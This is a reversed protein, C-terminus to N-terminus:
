SPFGGSRSRRRAPRLGGPLVASPMLPPLKPLRKFEAILADAQEVTLGRPVTRRVAVALDYLQRKQPGTAKM